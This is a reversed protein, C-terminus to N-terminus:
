TYRRESIMNKKDIIFYYIFKFKICNYKRIKAKLVLTYMHNYKM